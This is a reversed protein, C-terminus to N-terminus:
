AAILLGDLDCVRVTEFLMEWMPSEESPVRAYGGVEEGKRPWQTAALRQGVPPLAARLRLPSPPISPHIPSFSTLMWKKCFAMLLACLTWIGDVCRRGTGVGAPGGYLVRAIARAEAPGVYHWSVTDPACCGVAAAAAAAATPHYQVFWDDVVAESTRCPGYVHFREKNNAGRTSTADVGLSALCQAIVVGANTRAWESAARCAADKGEQHTVMIM